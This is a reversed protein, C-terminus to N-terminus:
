SERMSGYQEAGAEMRDLREHYDPFEKLHAPAPDTRQAFPATRM